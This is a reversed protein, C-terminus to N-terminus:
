NATGDAFVTHSNDNTAKVEQWHDKFGFWLAPDSSNDNGGNNPFVVWSSGGLTFDNVIVSGLIINGGELDIGPGNNCGDKIGYISGAFVGQGNMKLQACKNYYLRFKSATPDTFIAHLNSIDDGTTSNSDVWIRINGLHTLFVYTANKGTVKIFNLDSLYYDGPPFFYLPTGNAGIAQGGHVSDGQMVFRTGTPPTSDLTSTDLKVTLPATGLSRSATTFGATTLKTQVDALTLGAVTPESALTTDTSRLMMITSNANHTQLWTLGGAFMSSAVQSVSPFFVPDPNNAINGGDKGTYDASGGNMSLTGKVASSGEAGKFDVDGNAGMNGEVGTKGAAGVGNVFAVNYAYIAYEDFASKRYGRVHVTRSIGNVTGTSVVCVDAPPAWNGTGDCNSGWPKVYVSYKGIVQNTAPDTVTGVHPNGIQSVGSLNVLDRSAAAIEYNVGADALSVASAYDGETHARGFHSLAVTGVGALVTGVILSFALATILTFGAAKSRTSIRVM